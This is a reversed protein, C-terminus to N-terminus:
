RARYRKWLFSLGKVAIMLVLFWFMLHYITHASDSLFANEHASTIATFVLLMLWICFKM